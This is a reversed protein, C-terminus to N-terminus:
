NIKQGNATILSIVLSLHYHEEHFIVFHGNPQLVAKMYNPLYIKCNFVADPGYIVLTRIRSKRDEQQIVVQGDPSVTFGMPFTLNCLWKTAKSYTFCSYDELHLVILGRM